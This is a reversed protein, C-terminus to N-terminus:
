VHLFRKKLRILHFWFLADKSIYFWVSTHIHKCNESQNRILRFVILSKWNYYLVIYMSSVPHFGVTLCILYKNTAIINILHKNILIFIKINTNIMKWNIQFTIPHTHPTFYLHLFFIHPTHFIHPLQFFSIRFQLSINFFRM